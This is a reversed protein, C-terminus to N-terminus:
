CPFNLVQKLILKSNWECLVNLKKNMEPINRVLPKSKIGSNRIEGIKYCGRNRVIEAAVDLPTTRGSRYAEPYDGITVPKFKSKESIKSDFLVTPNPNSIRDSEFKASVYHVKKTKMFM